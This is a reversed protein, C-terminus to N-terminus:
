QLDLLVVPRKLSPYCYHKQIFDNVDDLIKQTITTLLLCIIYM